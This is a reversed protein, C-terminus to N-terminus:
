VGWAGCAAFFTTGTKLALFKKQTHPAGHRPQPLRVAVM